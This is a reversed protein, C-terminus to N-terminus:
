QEDGLPGVPQFQVTVQETDVGRKTFEVQSLRLQQTVPRLTYGVQIVGLAGPILAAPPVSCTPSLAGDSPVQIILPPPNRVAVQDAAMRDLVQQSTVTTPADFRREILGWYPDPGGAVGVLGGGIVAASTCAQNADETVRLEGLFDSDSMPPLPPVDIHGGAAIILRGLATYDLGQGTLDDWAELATHRDALEYRAQAFGGGLRLVLYQLLAPDDVALASQAVLQAIVAVDETGDAGLEDEFAVRGRIFRVGLWWLFDTATVTVATRGYNLGTIPGSWLMDEDRWVDIEFRVTRMDRLRAQDQESAPVPVELTAQSTGNIVRGCTVQGLGGLEARKRRDPAGPPREYLEARYQGDGYRGSM